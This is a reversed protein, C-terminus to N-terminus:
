KNKGHKAAAKDKAEQEQKEREEIEAKEQERRAIADMDPAFTITKPNGHEEQITLEKYDAHVMPYLVRLRNYEAIQEQIPVKRGFILVETGDHLEAITTARNM